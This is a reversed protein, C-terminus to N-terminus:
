VYIVHDCDKGSTSIVKATSRVKSTYLNYNGQKGIYFSYIYIYLM